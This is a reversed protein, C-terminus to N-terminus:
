AATAHKPLPAKTIKWHLVWLDWETELIDNSTYLHDSKYSEIGPLLDKFQKYPMQQYFVTM